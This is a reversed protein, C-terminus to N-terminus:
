PHRAIGLGLIYSLSAILMIYKSVNRTFTMIQLFVITKILPPLTFSKGPTFDWQIQPTLSKCPIESQLLPLDFLNQLLYLIYMDKSMDVFKLMNVSTSCTFNSKCLMYLKIQM